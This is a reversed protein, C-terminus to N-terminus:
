NTKRIRFQVKTIHDTSMDHESIELEDGYHRATAEIMGRALGAFPRRSMYTLELENEALFRWQFRPLETESYLKRVERHIHGELRTLFQLTDAESEFFSPYRQTFHGILHHGFTNILVNPEIQTRASLAEVLTLLERHSYTGLSTYAGGSDLQNESLIADVMELGFRDEVLRLFETFIVGKVVSGPKWM